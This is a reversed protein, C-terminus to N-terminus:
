FKGDNPQLVTLGLERYMKVIKHSDDLVFDVNFKGKIRNEYIERKCVDGKRFDGAKRTYLEYEDYNPLVNKDIYDRTAQRATEDRGTVFIVNDGKDIDMTKVYNQIIKIVPYNPVDTHMQEASGEGYFPRGSTNFCVTADMDVIICSPLEENRPIQNEVAKMTELHIIKDRYIRWIHRIAKEGVAKDGRLKDREICEELPIFFDKFEIEYHYKDSLVNFEKVLKEYMAVEKDNLNMNDAVIDFGLNMASRMFNKKMEDILKERKNTYTMYVSCSYRMDDNNFRVRTEPSEAVWQKAWTSKGSGQIGRTLILKHNEM